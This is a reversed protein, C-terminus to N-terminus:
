LARQLTEGGYSSVGVTGLRLAIELIGWPLPQPSVPDRPSAPCLNLLVPTPRAPPPSLADERTEQAPLRGNFSYKLSCM